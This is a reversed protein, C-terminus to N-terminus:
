VHKIDKFQCLNYGAALHTWAHLQLEAKKDMTNQQGWTDLNCVATKNASQMFFYIFLFCICLFFVKKLRVVEKGNKILGWSFSKKYDINNIENLITSM